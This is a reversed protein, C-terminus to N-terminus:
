VVASPRLFPEILSTLPLKRWPNGPTDAYMLIRIASAKGPSADLLFYEFSISSDINRIPPHSERISGLLVTRHDLYHRIAILLFQKFRHWNQLM